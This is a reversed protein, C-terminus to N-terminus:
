NWTWRRYVAIPVIEVRKAYKLRVELAVEVAEEHMNLLRYLFVSEKKLDHDICLRLAYRPDYTINTPDQLSILSPSSSRAKRHTVSLGTARRSVERQEQLYPMIQNPDFKVYESLLYNHISKDICGRSQCFKLFDLVAKGQFHSFITAIFFSWHFIVKPFARSYTIM